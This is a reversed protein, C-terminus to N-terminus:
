PREENVLGTHLAQENENGGNRNTGGRPGRARARDGQSDINYRVGNQNDVSKEFFNKGGDFHCPGYRM